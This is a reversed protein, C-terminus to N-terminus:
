LLSNKEGRKIDRKKGNMIIFKKRYKEKCKPCLEIGKNSTDGCRFAAVDDKNRMWVGCGLM